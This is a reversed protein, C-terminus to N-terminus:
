AASEGEPSPVRLERSAELQALGLRLAARAVGSKCVTKTALRELRDRIDTETRIVLTATKMSAVGCYGCTDCSTVLSKRASFRPRNAIPALPAGSTTASHTVRRTWLPCWSHCERPELM